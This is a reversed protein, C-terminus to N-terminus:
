RLAAAWQERKQEFNLMAMAPSTSPLSHLNYKEADELEPLVRRRFQKEATKGNLLIRTIERHEQFFLNFNNVEISSTQINSDLSGQRVCTKLVDWIAVRNKVLLNCREQYNLSNAKFVDNMIRWFSNRPHAYYEQENLSAVGPMSGLILTQANAKAIPAFSAVRESHIQSQINMAFRLDYAVPYFGM